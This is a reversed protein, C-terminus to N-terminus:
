IKITIQIASPSISLAEAIMAKARDIVASPTERAREDEAASDPMVGPFEQWELEDPNIGLSDVTVYAVPNRQGVWANPVNITAYRNFQIVLRGPEPPPSAKVGVISGILFASAHEEAGEAWNSHRNRVAILWRCRRIRDENALWNGSGGEKIMTELSKSTLVMVAQRDM